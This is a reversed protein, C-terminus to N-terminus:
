QLRVRWPPTLENGAEAQKRHRSLATTLARVSLTVHHAALQQAAVTPTVNWDRMITAITDNELHGKGSPYLLAVREAYWTLVDRLLQAADLVTAAQQRLAGPDELEDCLRALYAEAVRWHQETFNESLRALITERTYESLDVNAPFVSRGELLDACRHAGLGVRELARVLMEVAERFEAVDLDRVMLITVAAVAWRDITSPVESVPGAVRHDDSWGIARGLFRWNSVRAREQAVEGAPTEIPKREIPQSVKGTNDSRSRTTDFGM